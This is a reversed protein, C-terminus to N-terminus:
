LNKLFIFSVYIFRLSTFLNIKKLTNKIGDCVTQAQLTQKLSGLEGIVLLKCIATPVSSKIKNKINVNPM